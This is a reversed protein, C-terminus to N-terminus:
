CQVLSMSRMGTMGAFAPVWSFLCLLGDGEERLSLSGSLPSYEACFTRTMGGQRTSHLHVCTIRQGRLRDFHAGGNGERLPARRRTRM